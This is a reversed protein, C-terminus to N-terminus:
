QKSGFLWLRSIEVVFCTNVSFSEFNSVSVPKSPRALSRRACLSVWLVWLKIRIAIIGANPWHGSDLAVTSLRRNCNFIISYITVECRKGYKHHVFDIRIALQILRYKSERNGCGNLRKTNTDHTHTHANWSEANWGFQNQKEEYRANLAKIKHAARHQLTISTSNPRRSSFGDLIWRYTKDITTHTHTNANSDLILNSLTRPFRQHDRPLYKPNHPSSSFSQLSFIIWYIFNFYMLWSLM